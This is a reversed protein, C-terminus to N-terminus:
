QEPQQICWEVSVALSAIRQALAVQEDHNMAMVGAALAGEKGKAPLLSLDSILSDIEQLIWDSTRDVSPHELARPDLQRVSSILRKELPGDMAVLQNLM